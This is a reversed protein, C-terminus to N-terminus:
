TVRSYIRITLASVKAMAAMRAESDTLARPPEFGEPWQLPEEGSWIFTPEATDIPTEICPETTTSSDNTTGARVHPGQRVNTHM